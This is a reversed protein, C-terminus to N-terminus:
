RLIDSNIEFTHSKMHKLINKRYRFPELYKESLELYEKTIKELEPASLGKLRNFIAPDLVAARGIMAGSVGVSKLYAIQEKTKIDGNAIIKKGTKVCEEYVKFDAPENYTQQGHRAHVVFFDADLADILHLYVKNEKDRQNLGLRMKVSAKFGYDKFISLIKKTKSIRRVMACGQGLHIVQPSPCGLNLNFGQFGKSPEFINLFRKFHLEKAGLLQLVVPTEDKLEIRSWTSKNKRALAEVRILETFTLDAGYRYCVTRFSNSTIDELPALIYQFDTM